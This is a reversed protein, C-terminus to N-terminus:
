CSEVQINLDGVRGAILCCSNSVAAGLVFGCALSKLKTMGFSNFLRKLRVHM